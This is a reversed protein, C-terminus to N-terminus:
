RPDPAPEGRTAGASAVCVLAVAVFQRPSLREHLVVLGMLAAVAPELSMLVGFTAATIRRLALLELSYPVASSLLGVGCGILLPRPELLRTGSQILGVPALVLACVGMALALGQIGPVAAGTSKSLIIYSAWLAGAVLALAVGWPDLAGSLLAAGGDTLLLVGIVALLAWLADRFRRSGALAVGLPGVFEIAVAVGLPIRSIAEYFALNMVGLVTGFALVLRLSRRDLGRVSPRVFALLIVAGAANWLFVTGAPGLEAFLGKALAAGLQVSVIGGLVLLVPSPLAGTRRDPM